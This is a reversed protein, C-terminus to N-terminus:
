RLQRLADVVRAAKAAGFRKVGARSTTEVAALADTSLNHLVLESGGCHREIAKSMALGVGPLALARERFRSLPALSKVTSRAQLTSHQDWETDNGWRVLSAIWRATQQKSSTQWLFLGGQLTLSFLRKHLTDETMRGPLARLQGREDKVCLQGRRDMAVTGEVLLFPYEYTERLRPLQGAGSETTMGQLRGSMLSGILDPLTKREIGVMAEGEPGSIPFAFDASDLTTLEAQVGQQRLLPLLEKSGVRGDVWVTPTM